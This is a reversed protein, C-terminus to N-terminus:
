LSVNGKCRGYLGTIMPIILVHSWSTHETDGHTLFIAIHGSCMALAHKNAEM